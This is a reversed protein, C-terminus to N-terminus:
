PDVTQFMRIWDHAEQESAFWQWEMRGMCRVTARWPKDEPGFQLESRHLVEGEVWCQWRTEM